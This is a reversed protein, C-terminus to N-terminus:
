RCIMPVISRAFAKLEDPPSGLRARIALTDFMAGGLRARIAPSPEASLEGAAVAQAFANTLAAEFSGLIEAAAAAIAPHTPAEVAATGIIMCGTAPHPTCYADVALEYLLGLREAIPGTGAGLVADIAAVSQTGYDRLAALYLQEKNGFAAYLSPRNLGTASALDDLSTASFGSMMFVRRVRHLVEAKDFGRPRGPARKASETSNRM